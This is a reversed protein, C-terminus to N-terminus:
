QGDSFQFQVYIKIARVVNESQNKLFNEELESKILM